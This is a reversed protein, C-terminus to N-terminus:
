SIGFRACDILYNNQIERESLVRTYVRNCFVKGNFVRDSHAGGISSPPDVYAWGLLWGTKETSPASQWPRSSLIAGNLFLSIVGGSVDYAMAMSHVPGISTLGSFGQTVGDFADGGDPGTGCNYGNNSTYYNLGYIGLGGGVRSGFIGKYNSMASAISYVCEVTWASSCSSNVPFSANYFGYYGGFNFGDQDWGSGISDCVLNANGRLDVWTSASNSHMGSGANEIGDYHLLLGSTAYSSPSSGMATHRGAIM